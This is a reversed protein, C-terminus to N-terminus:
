GQLPKRVMVEITAELTVTHLATANKLRAFAQAISTGANNGRLYFKLTELATAYQRGRQQEWAVVDFHADFHASTKLGALAQM